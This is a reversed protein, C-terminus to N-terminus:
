LIKGDPSALVVTPFLQIRLAETLAANQAAHVKLPVFKDNLLSAVSPDQFTTTDLKTCWFCNDTIFDLVLPRGKEQAERRAAAYDYRWTVSQAPAVAASVPLLLLSVCLRLPTFAFLTRRVNTSM